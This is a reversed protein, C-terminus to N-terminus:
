DQGDPESTKRECAHAPCIQRSIKYGCLEQKDTGRAAASQGSLVPKAWRENKQAFIREVTRHIFYEGYLM